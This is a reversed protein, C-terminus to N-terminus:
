WAGTRVCVGVRLEMVHIAARLGQYEAEEMQGILATEEKAKERRDTTNGPAKMYEIAHRHERDRLVRYWREAAKEYLNQRMALDEDLEQLRQQIQAPTLM